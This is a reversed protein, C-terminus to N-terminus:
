IAVVTCRPVVLLDTLHTNRMYVDYIDDISRGNAFLVEALSMEMPVIVRTVAPVEIAKALDQLTNVTETLAAFVDDTRGDSVEMLEDRDAIISEIIKTVAAKASAPTAITKTDVDVDSEPEPRALPDVKTPIADSEGFDAVRQGTSADITSAFTNASASASEDGSGFLMSIADVAQNTLNMTGTVNASVQNIRNRIGENLALVTNITSRQSSLNSEFSRVQSLFKNAVIALKSKAASIKSLASAEELSKEPSANGGGVFVSAKAEAEIWTVSVTLTNAASHDSKKDMKQYNALVSEPEDPLTLIGSTGENCKTRFAVFDNLYNPGFFVLEANFTRPDRGFDSVTGGDVGARKAIQLRREESQQLSVAGFGKDPAPVAVAFTHGKFSGDTLQKWEDAM